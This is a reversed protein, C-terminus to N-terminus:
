VVCRRRQYVSTSTLADMLSGTLYPLLTFTTMLLCILMVQTAWYTPVIDGPLMCCPM